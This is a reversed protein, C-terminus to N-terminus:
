AAGGTAKLLAAKAAIISQPEPQQGDGEGWYIGLMDALAEYLDPAAAILHANAAWRDPHALGNETAVALMRDPSHEVTCILGGFM